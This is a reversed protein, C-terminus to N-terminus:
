HIRSPSLSPDLATQLPSKLEEKMVSAKASSIACMTDVEVEGGFLIELKFEREKGMSPQQEKFQREPTPQFIHCNSVSSLTYCPAADYDDDSRGCCRGWKLGKENENNFVCVFSGSLLHSFPNSAFIEFQTIM